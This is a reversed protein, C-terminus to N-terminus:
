NNCVEDEKSNAMHKLRQEAEDPNIEDLHTEVWQMLAQQNNQAHGTGFYQVLHDGDPIHLVQMLYSAILHIQQRQGISKTKTPQLQEPATNM